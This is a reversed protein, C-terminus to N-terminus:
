NPIDIWNTGGCFVMKDNATDYQMAGEDGALLAGSAACGAGGVGATDSVDYNRGEGCWQYIHSTTNYDMVGPRTCSYIDSVDLESLAYDYIRFDDIRGTFPQSNSAKRLKGIAARDIGTFTYSSTGTLDSVGDLYITYNIGDKVVAVHYWRNEDLPTTARFDTRGDASEVRYELVYSVGSADRVFFFLYPVSAGAGESYITSQSADRDTVYIWAAITYDELEYVSPTMDIQHASTDFDISTGIQGEASDNAADLGGIMAGDNEAASDVATTGTTEDLKWHNILGSYLKYTAFSNAGAIVEVAEGEDTIAGHGLRGQGGGGWCYGKRNYAIGCTHIDGVELQSFTGVTNEGVHVEVPEASFVTSNNGLRGQSGNAGWCYGKGDTGIGCSHNNGGSISIYTAASNEGAHVEVPTSQDSQNGHGLRGSAGEGWCYAKNDTGIACTHEDANYVDIFTGPSEGDLVLVPELQNGGTTGNGLDWFLSAGL